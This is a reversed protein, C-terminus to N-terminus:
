ASKTNKDQDPNLRPKHFYHRILRALGKHWHGNVMTVIDAAMDMSVAGNMMKAMGRFPINYIFLLNLDPKGKEIAKNVKRTLIKCALRAVPNKAYFLQRVTDNMGLPENRRWTHDPIRRGLLAQFASDSIDTLSCKKYCDLQPSAYPNQKGTGKVTWTARLRIDESSAGVLIEYQGGEVEFANSQVNFYRFTYADFPISVRKTEGAKLSVRLFGKLEAAPRFIKAGPLSIYLQAIEDGDRSGTNAIDFSVGGDQVSLNSYAFATYSLGFGFPFRVPQRATLFYRYGVYLGERYESTAERGPYYQSVPMDQYALPFTEALKGGPNVAGSLVRLLADAAAEGGLCGYVLAQCSDIWPTEVASGCSLVAIIRPNVARIKEMLAIQNQPLRLHARDLGETEFGEPLGIYLLVYEARGALAVAEAELAKNERDLREFGQAYGINEPFYDKLLALTEDVQRANVMSSGAGQYRPHAAFDGIVAVKASPSLPLINEENKLLVVCKEAAARVAEHQAKGEPFPGKPRDALVVDLLEDVRQDIQAEKIRGEKVAQILQCPSDEGAAPMELNMGARVGDTYDNSGGWDTVVMGEFGWERRLIDYLHASENAYVGNVKNYSTMVCRPKGERIAIEFNTLYIERLTREDMVSDSHMRLLEQSNAAFHKACASVGQSQVGRIFGAALKGALYPDESYYEFSRGCLPSRKTNLGPGLLVQVDQAAADSGVVAGMSEAVEASWSNAITAASPINTAKTSENLGLHDGAAAQKRLGSPGDSLTIAPIGMRDIARTHWVDRGSLLAAKEELTLQAILEQHKM